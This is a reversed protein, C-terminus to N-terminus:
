RRGALREFLGILEDAHADFTFRDRVAAVSRRAAAAPTGDALQAAVDEADSYLLGAGTARVLEDVAVTSGPSEQQLMPLGAAMLTGIRAPHNLDDWTARRLDGGNDSSIRHMWGADYRSLVPVWGRQDVADHVHVHGPARRRAEALWQRWTGQPGPGDSLGHFHVHVGYAALTALFDPELGLPRGLVVTHVEGETTSLRDAPRGAFWDAKPLSGDLVLTRDPDLGGPLALEFWSREEPSSLVVADAGTCLQALRPWDGRAISRQPAEKYHWVFPVGRAAALVDHAFRVARFNLQAYIVDPRVDEWWTAPDVDVVHGFPM